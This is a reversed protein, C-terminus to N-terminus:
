AMLLAPEEKDDQALHAREQRRPEKCDCDWHGIKGCNCCCDKDSGHLVVELQYIWEGNM